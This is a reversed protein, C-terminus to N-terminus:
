EQRSNAGKIDKINLVIHLRDNFAQACFGRIEGPYRNKPLTLCICCDKHDLKHAYRECSPCLSSKTMPIDLIPEFYLMFNWKNWAQSIFFGEHTKWNSAFLVGM